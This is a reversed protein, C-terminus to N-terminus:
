PQEPHLEFMLGAHKCLRELYGAGFCSAPTWFGGARGLKTNGEVLDFALHLAAHALMKASASYGPDQDGTVKLGIRLGNESRALFRLDFSGAQQAATSPGEGPSPLLFRQMLSRSPQGLAAIFFAALAATIGAAKLWGTLGPGTLWAENYRFHAGYAQNLLANTRHVVPENVAAMVFPAIWAGFAQDFETKTIQHQQIQLQTSPPCLAYPNNLEKRIAPDAKARGLAHLLSAVTGGSVSGKLHKVRMAVERAPVNWRRVAEQQLAWVGMDSPVSDFGCCNIIRAGTRRATEQYKAIMQRVWLTEGTLDCYDTGHDACAKIVPEGYLAYPGVTSVLVRTQACLAATEEPRTTDAILMTPGQSLGGLSAKLHELKTSSRGAIAWRPPPGATAFYTALYRTLIQGVFGSAGFVVLDFRPANM